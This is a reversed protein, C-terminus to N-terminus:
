SIVRKATEELIYEVYSNSINSHKDIVVNGFLSASENVVWPVNSNSRQQFLIHVEEKCTDDHYLKICIYPRDYQDMGYMIPHTLMNIPIEINEEFNVYNNQHDIINCNELDFLIKLYEPIKALIINKMMINKIVKLIFFIENKIQFIIELYNQLMIM